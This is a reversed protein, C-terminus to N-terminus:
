KEDLVKSLYKMHNLSFNQISYVNLCCTAHTSQMLLKAVDKINKVNACVPPQCQCEKIAMHMHWQCHCCQLHTAIRIDLLIAAIRLIAVALIDTLM